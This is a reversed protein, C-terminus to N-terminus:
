PDVKYIRKFLSLCALKSIDCFVGVTEKNERFFFYTSGKKEFPNPLAVFINKLCIFGIFFNLRQHVSSSYSLSSLPNGVNGEESVIKGLARHFGTLWSNKMVFYIRKVETIQSWPVCLIYFTTTQVKVQFLYCCEFQAKLFGHSILDNLKKSFRPLSCWSLKPAMTVVSLPLILM